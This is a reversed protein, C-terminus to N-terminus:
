KRRPARAPRPRAAMPARNIASGSRSVEVLDANLNDGGHYRAFGTM